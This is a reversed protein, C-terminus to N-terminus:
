LIFKLLIVLQEPFYTPQDQIFCTLRHRDLAEGDAFLGSCFDCVYMTHLKRSSVSPKDAGPNCCLQESIYPCSFCIKLRFM